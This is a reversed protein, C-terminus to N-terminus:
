KSWRFSMSSLAHLGAQQGEETVAQHELGTIVLSDFTTYTILIYDTFVRKFFFHTNTEILDQTKIAQMPRALIRLDTGVRECSHIDLTPAQQWAPTPGLHAIGAGQGMLKPAVYLVLEDVLGERLLSGNLKHGAEV